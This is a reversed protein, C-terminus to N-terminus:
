READFVYCGKRQKAIDFAVKGRHRQVIPLHHDRSGWVAHCVPHAVCPRGAPNGERHNLIVVGDGPKHKHVGIGILIHHDQFVVDNNRSCVEGLVEVHPSFGPVTGLTDRKAHIGFAPRLNNPGERQETIDRAIVEPFGNRGPHIHKFAVGNLPAGPVLVAPTGRVIRAM